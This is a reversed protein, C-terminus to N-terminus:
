SSTWALGPPASRLPTVLLHHHGLSDTVFTFRIIM